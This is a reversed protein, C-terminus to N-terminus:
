RPHPVVLPVILLGFVLAVLNVVTEQSGDKSFVDALNNRRAQHQTLATRTAGGAVGVLSKALGSVCQILTFCNVFYPSLLDTFIAIDNILDAFLRWKKCDADLQSGRLYAFAIRGLM